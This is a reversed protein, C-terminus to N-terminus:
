YEEINARFVQDSVEIGCGRNKNNYLDVQRRQSSKTNRQALTLVEKLNDRLRRVYIYDTIISDREISSFMVDM